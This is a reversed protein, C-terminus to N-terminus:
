FVIVFVTSSWRTNGCWIQMHLFSKTEPIHLPTISLQRAFVKWRGRAERMSPFRWLTWHGWAWDAHALDFVYSQYMTSVLQSYAKLPQLRGSPSKSPRLGELIAPPPHPTLAAARGGCIYCSRPHPPLAAARGGCSLRGLIQFRRAEPWKTIKM